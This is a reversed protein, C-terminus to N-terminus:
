PTGINDPFQLTHTGACAATSVSFYFVAIYQKGNGLNRPLPLTNRAFRSIEKTIILDFKDNAADELMQADIGSSRMEEVASLMLNTLTLDGEASKGYQELLPSLTALTHWMLLSSVAGNISEATIGGYQCFVKEALGSFSVVEFFLGANKPLRQALNRESIYAQQEPILLFSRVGNRVDEEICKTLYETKGSGSPACILKLM